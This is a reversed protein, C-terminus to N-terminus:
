PYLHTWVHAYDQPRTLFRFMDPNRRFTTFMPEGRHLGFDAFDRPPLTRPVPASDDVEDNWRM